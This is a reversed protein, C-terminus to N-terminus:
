TQYSWFLVSCISFLGVFRSFLFFLIRNVMLVRNSSLDEPEPNAWYLKSVDYGFKNPHVVPTFVFNTSSPVISILFQALYSFSDVTGITTDFPERNEKRPSEFFM